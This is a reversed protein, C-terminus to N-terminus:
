PTRIAARERLLQALEAHCLRVAARAQQEPARMM